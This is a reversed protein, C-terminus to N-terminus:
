EGQSSSWFCGMSEDSNEFTALRESDGKAIPLMGSSLLLAGNRYAMAPPSNIDKKEPGLVIINSVSISISHKQKELRL